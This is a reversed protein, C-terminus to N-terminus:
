KKELQAIEKEIFEEASALNQSLETLVGQEEKTLDRVQSVGHLREIQRVVDKRLLNFAHHTAREARHMGGRVNRLKQFSYWLLFSLLFILAILPIILSLALLSNQGFLTLRSPAVKFSIPVSSDSEAGNELRVKFSVTYIGAPL